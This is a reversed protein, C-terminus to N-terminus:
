WELNISKQYKINAQKRVDVEVMNVVSFVGVVVVMTGSSVPFVTVEVILVVIVIELTPVVNV